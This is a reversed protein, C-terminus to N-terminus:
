DFSPLEVADSGCAPPVIAGVTMGLASKTLLLRRIRDCPKAPNDLMAQFRAFAQRAMPFYSQDRLADEAERCAAEVIFDSRTRGM